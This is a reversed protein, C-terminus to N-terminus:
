RDIQLMCLLGGIGDTKQWAGQVLGSEAATGWKDVDGSMGYRRIRPYLKSVKDLLKEGTDGGGLDHDTLVADFVDQGGLTDLLYLAQKSTGAAVIHEVHRALARSVVRRILPDDDVILLHM